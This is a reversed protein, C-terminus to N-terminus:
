CDGVTEVLRWWDRVIEVTEVLRWWDRSGGTEVLRWWARVTEVLRATKKM